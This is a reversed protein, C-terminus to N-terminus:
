LGATANFGGGTKEYIPQRMSVGLSMVPLNVTFSCAMSDAELPAPEFSVTCKISAM